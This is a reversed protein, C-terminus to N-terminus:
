FFIIKLITHAQTQNSLKESFILDKLDLYSELSLNYESHDNSYATDVQRYAIVLVNIETVKIYKAILVFSIM